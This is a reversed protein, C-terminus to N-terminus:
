VTYNSKRFDGMADSGWSTYCILPINTKMHCCSGEEGTFVAMLRRFNRSRAVQGRSCKRKVLVCFKKCWWEDLKIQNRTYGINLADFLVAIRFKSPCDSEVKPLSPVLIGACYVHILIIEFYVNKVKSNNQFQPHTFEKGYVTHLGFLPVIDWREGM